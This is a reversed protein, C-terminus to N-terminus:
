DSFNTGEFCLFDGIRKFLRGCFNQAVRYVPNYLYWYKSFCTSEIKSQYTLLILEKIWFRYKKYSLVLVIDSQLIQNYYQM